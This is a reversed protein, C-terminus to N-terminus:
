CLNGHTIAMLPQPNTTNVNNSTHLTLLLLFSAWTFQCQRWPRSVSIKSTKKARTWKAIKFAQTQCKSMHGASWSPFYHFQRWQPVQIQPWSLNARKRLRKTKNGGAGSSTHLTKVQRDRHWKWHLTTSTHVRNLAMQRSICMSLSTNKWV